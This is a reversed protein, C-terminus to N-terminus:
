SMSQIYARIAQLSELSETRSRFYPTMEAEFAMQCAMPPRM